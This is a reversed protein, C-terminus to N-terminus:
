SARDSSAHVQRSTPIREALDDDTAGAAARVRRSRDLVVYPEETILAPLVVAFRGRELDVDIAEHPIIDGTDSDARAM